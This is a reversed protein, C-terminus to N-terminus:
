WENSVGGDLKSCYNTENYKNENLKSLKNNFMVINKLTDISIAQAADSISNPPDPHCEIILGDVGMAIAAKSIPEVFNRYGTSHSPDFIIPINTLEKLASIAMLDPAWRITNFVHRYSPMGIVGRLCIAIKDNGKVLLRECAGLIEDITGWTGRKLLVPKGLEGLKDLLPYNQFNRTGVQIVDITDLNEKTFQEPTMIESIIPLNYTKKIKKLIDIGKERLGEKWGNTEKLIPYTCPKYAGGRFGDIGIKKLEDFWPIMWEGEISCPGSFIAAKNQKLYPFNFTKQKDISINLKNQLRLNEIYENRKLNNNNMYINKEALELDRPTHINTCNDLFSGVRKSMTKNKVYESKTIRTAGNRVGFKDVTVLDDYKNEVFYKLIIDLNINRDPHDPQAAVVHSVNDFWSYTQLKDMMYTYVEAVEADKLLEEPRPLIIISPDIQQCLNKVEESETSVCIHKIYKSNKLYLISHELLTKNNIERLNKKKLRTSDTKCPIFGISYINEIDM